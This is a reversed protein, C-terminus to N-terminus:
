LLQRLLKTVRYGNAVIGISEFKERIFKCFFMSKEANVNAVIAQWVVIGAKMPRVDDLDAIDGAIDGAIDVKTLLM